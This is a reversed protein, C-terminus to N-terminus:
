VYIQPIYLMDRQDIGVRCIGSYENNQYSMYLKDLREYVDSVLLPISDYLINIVKIKRHLSPNDDVNPIVSFWNGHDIESLEIYTYNAEEYHFSCIFGKDMILKMLLVNMAMDERLKMIKFNDNIEAPIWVGETMVNRPCMGHYMRVEDVELQEKRQYIDKLIDINPLVQYLWLFITRKSTLEFDYKYSNM